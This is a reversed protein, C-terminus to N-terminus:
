HEQNTSPPLSNEQNIAEPNIKIDQTTANSTISSGTALATQLSSAPSTESPHVMSSTTSATSSAATEQSLEM